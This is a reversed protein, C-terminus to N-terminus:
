QRETGVECDNVSFGSRFNSVISKRNWILECNWCIENLLSSQLFLLILVTRLSSRLSSCCHLVVYGLFEVSKKFCEEIAAKQVPDSIDGRVAFGHDCGAYYDRRDISASDTFDLLFQSPIDLRVTRIERSSRMLLLKSRQDLCSIATSIEDAKPGSHHSILNLEWTECTNWLFPISKAKIAVLDDPVNLLSPHSVIAVKLVSDLVLDVTYRAGFGIWVRWDTNMWSKCYECYGTAAFETYGQAKLGAILADLPPRTQAAGHNALWAM